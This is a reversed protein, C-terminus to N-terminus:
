PSDVALFTYLSAVVQAGEGVAAAVCKASKAHVDGIAFVGSRTTESVYRDDGADAGTPIFGKADLAIGARIRWRLVQLM